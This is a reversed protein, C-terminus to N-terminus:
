QEMEFEPKKDTKSELKNTGELAQDMAERLKNHQPIHKTKDYAFEELKDLSNINPNKLLTWGIVSGGNGQPVFAKNHDETLYKSVDYNIQLSVSNLKEQTQIDVEKSSQQGKLFSEQHLSQSLNLKDLHKNAENQNSFEKSIKENNEGAAVAFNGNSLEKVKYEEAIRKSQSLDVLSGNELERNLVAYRGEPNFESLPVIFNKGTRMYAKDNKESYELKASTIMGYDKNIVEFQTPKLRDLTEINVGYQSKMFTLAQTYQKDNQNYFELAKDKQLDDITEIVDHAIEQIEGIAQRALNLDKAWTAIYGLSIDDTAQGYYSSVLYAVSEAQAEKHGRPLDKMDSEMHHLKAHGFEHVLVRFKETDNENNNNSIVIEDTSPRYFGGVGPDTKGESLNYHTNEDVHKYFDQYLKSMNEDNSMERNIFDRVSPIEKGNTQSVDFVSVMRFGTIVRKNEKEVEGKNNLKPKKTIPDLKDMEKKKINPALIRIGTEGKNVFRGLEQWAKYGQVMTAQPKQTMILLTNNLSYGKFQAMTQLLDQFRKQEFIDSLGKDLQKNVDDVSLFNSKTAM